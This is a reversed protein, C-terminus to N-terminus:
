LIKELLNSVLKQHKSERLVAHPAHRIRFSKILKAQKAHKKFLNIAQDMIELYRSEEHITLYLEGKFRAIEQLPRASTLEKGKIAQIIDQAEIELFPINEHEPLMISPELLILKKIGPKYNVISASIYGGMSTGVLTINNPNVYELSLLYDLIAKADKLHERLPPTSKTTSEGKGRFDFCCAVYGKISLEKAISYYREKVGGQGNMLVVLPHKKKKDQHFITGIINDQGIKITIKEM